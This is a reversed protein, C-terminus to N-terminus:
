RAQIPSNHYKSLQLHDRDLVLKRFDSLIISYCTQAAVRLSSGGLVLPHVVVLNYKPIYKIEASQAEARGFGQRSPVRPVPAPSPVRPVPAPSPVRLVPSPRLQELTYTQRETQDLLAERLQRNPEAQDQDQQIAAILGLM